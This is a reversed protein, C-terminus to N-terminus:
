GVFSLQLDVLCLARVRGACSASPRAHPRPRVTCRNLRLDGDAYLPGAARLRPFHRRPAESGAPSKRSETTSLPARDHQHCRAGRPVLNFQSVRSKHWGPRNRGFQSSCSRNLRLGTADTMSSAAFVPSPERKRRRFVGLRAPDSRRWAYCGHPRNEVRCM